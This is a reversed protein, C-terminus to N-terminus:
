RRRAHQGPRRRMNEWFKNFDHTATADALRTKLEAPLDDYAAQTNAFLTAGLVQGDRRPVKM